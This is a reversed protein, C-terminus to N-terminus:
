PVGDKNAAPNPHTIRALMVIAHTNRDQVLLLFPRNATFVLPKSRPTLAVTTKATAIPGTEDVELTVQQRIDGIKLAESATIGSFDAKSRDFASTIGMTQAIPIADVDQDLRFRPLSLQTPAPEMARVLDGLRRADLTDLLRKLGIDVAPLVVLVTLPSNSCSLELIDCDNDTKISFTSIQAMLPVMHVLPREDAQPEAVTQPPSEISQIARDDQWPSEVTDESNFPNDWTGAFSMANTIVARTDPQLWSLDEASGSRGYWAAITGRATVSDVFDIVSLDSRDPQQVSLQFQSEIALGNQVWVRSQSPIKLQSLLLAIKGVDAEEGGCLATAIETATAGKAGAHALLLTQGLGHASIVANNFEDGPCERLARLAFQNWAVTVSENPDTEDAQSVSLCGAAVFIGSLLFPVVLLSFRPIADM